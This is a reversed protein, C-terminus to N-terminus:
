MASNFSFVPEISRNATLFTTSVTSFGATSIVKCSARRMSGDAASISGFDADRFRGIQQSADGRLGGLLDNKLLNAFGLPLGDILSYEPRTPSSTFQVTLRM